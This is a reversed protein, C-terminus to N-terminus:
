EYRLAVMPDVRSARRAPVFGALVAATVLTSVTVAITAADNPKVGYLQSEIYKTTALAVPLGIAVGAVVLVLSDRLVNWVVGARGAGLAMRIGIENTRRAVAYALTGYLGIAVLLLAAFGFFGCLRAFLREQRLSEELLETQTQVDMLPLTPDVSRVAQRVAPVLAKPDEATRVEFYLQGLPYSESGYPVYATRPPATRLRDYKANATVGIIEYDETLDRVRGFNFHQGIPNEGPYFYKAFADNVVAVRASTQVDRWEIGRGLLLPMGMTEFFAPGVSNWYAGKSQGAQLPPGDTAVSGNSVWGSLLANGSATAARVGPLSQLGELVRNYTNVAHRPPLSSTSRNADLAFLLVDRRNFGLNQNELKQLTRVFLGAGVLLLLSLAVQGAILIKALTLRPAIAGSAEKLVRAMDVRTARLAPAIGFLVGTLLCLGLSFALVARDPAVDLAFSQGRTSVLLLLARGGWQALLLGLAASIASLLVSETLLQRVLRARSAGTALRVSMEKQRAAARALLLTAVNACAILLLLAVGTMLVRLPKSYYERLFDLGKGAPVLELRPLDEPKPAPEVGATIARQFLPGLEALAQAETVGPKRRGMIMLWWWARDSFMAQSRPPKSGWPALGLQNRLPVWFDSAQSPDAGFFGPPTVGVITFPLGNLHITKGLASPDRAFLREWYSYSLVVAGPADPKLDSEGITRGLMPAVGLGSFYEGTVMQGGALTAQGNITVTVSQNSFGFPVYGFVSSLTRSEARLGGLTAYSLSTGSYGSNRRLVQEPPDRKATYRLLVLLQPDKVPLTKLLVANMLSFITTSAGIGLALCAVAVATFGPNKRLMRLGFRLDQGLRELWTWGWSERVEETILTTNGFARRAAYRAEDPAVGEERQEEAELDLNAEIERRLDEERRKRLWPWWIM